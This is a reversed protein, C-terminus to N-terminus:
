SSEKGINILGFKNVPWYRLLAQGIIGDKSIPGFERSDSSATRNDGMVFYQQNPVTVEEGDQLFTEGPTKLEPKLYPESLQKGNVYVQGNLLKVREGPLGIVRKIFVQDHNKPNYLIVVEGRELEGIRLALKNTIIYDADHFNPFMSNGSVKHPEAVFFRIVVLIALMIAVFEILEILNGKIKSGWGEEQYDSDMGVIIETLQWLHM